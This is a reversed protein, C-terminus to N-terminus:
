KTYVPFDGALNKVKKGIEKLKTNNKRNKLASSILEGIKYMEEVGMGQTTVAPTGIRIGSALYPNLKDFPIVNKNLIIGVSSLVNAATMGNIGMNTLDILFLHNDTGGTVIRFGENKIYECLAKSNEIIRRSYDKFSDKLAERFAVAKAAIIHMMPGGQVGPFVSKDILGAYKKDAIVLGGRPGRLTKHTTATTFDAVNISSPHHGTVMLGAIHATDAMLYAGVEDAIDRFKNFDILRSYSSAGAIILKPRTAKALKRVNEYDIMETEPDVTYTHIEYYRGSLNQKHGHSLHGGDRLNMSLIRDGCNLVSLYVALNASVGSHPQVNSYNSGFLQNARNIALQEIEDIHECGAYYRFGPYGEAYKNTLISGMTRIVEQSTFNESAILILQNKQRELEKKIIEKVEADIDTSLTHNEHKKSKVM